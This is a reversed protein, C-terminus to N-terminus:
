YRRSSYEDNRPRRERPTAENGKITRGQLQTGNLENIARQAEDNNGMEVFGFGRSQKTYKDMIVHASDVRGFAAFANELDSDRTDYSLNGVYINM